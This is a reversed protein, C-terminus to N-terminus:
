LLPDRPGSNINININILSNAPDMQGRAM